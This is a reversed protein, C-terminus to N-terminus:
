KPSPAVKIRGAFDNVNEGVFNCRPCAGGPCFFSRGRDGRFAAKFSLRLARAYLGRSPAGCALAYFRDHGEV